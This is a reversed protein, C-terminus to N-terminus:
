TRKEMVGRGGRSRVDYRSAGEYFDQWKSRLLQQSVAENGRGDVVELRHQRRGVLEAVADDELHSLKEIQSWVFILSQGKGRLILLNSAAASVRGGCPRVLAM